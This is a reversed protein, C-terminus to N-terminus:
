QSIAGNESVNNHPAEVVAGSRWTKPRALLYASQWARTSCRRVFHQSFNPVLFGPPISQCRSVLFNLTAHCRPVTQRPPATTLNPPDREARDAGNAFQDEIIAARRRSVGGILGGECLRCARKRESSTWSPKTLSPRVESRDGFSRLAQAACRQRRPVTESLTASQRPPVTPSTSQGRPHRLPRQCRQAVPQHFDAGLDDPV